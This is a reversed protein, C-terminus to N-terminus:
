LMYFDSATLHQGPQVTAFLVANHSGNGDDDYYVKGQAQDYIIRDSADHAATGAYFADAQLAGAPGAKAFIATSLYFKDKDLSSFDTLTDVNNKGDLATDFIFRDRGAGGTLTDNGAGGRLNDSGDGGDLADNGGEGYLQDDGAGGSIINAADNGKLSNNLANGSVDIAKDGRLDADEVNDFLHFSVTSVVQDRGANVQEIVQANVDTIYYRDDGGFGELIDAGGRGLMADDHSTGLLHEADTTGYISITGTAAMDTQTTLSALQSSSVQNDNLVLGNLGSGATHGFDLGYYSVVGDGTGQTENVGLYVGAKFYLTDSQWVKNVDISSTYLTGDAYVGVTMHDGKATIVYSFKEGISVSPRNGDADTFDYRLETNKAGALDNKYYVTGNDWYLRILEDSAGHIQAVVMKGAQGNKLTPAGDVSLTGTMTGGQKLTWAARDSGTSERLESRAYKTGKSVAGDVSATFTMAGDSASYFWKSQYGALSKLESATGSTGGANDIPLTIYWKSLHFLDSNTTM